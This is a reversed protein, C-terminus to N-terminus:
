KKPANRIFPIKVPEERKKIKMTLARAQRM